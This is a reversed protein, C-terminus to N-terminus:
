RFNVVFRPSHMPFASYLLRVRDSEPCQMLFVPSIKQPLIDSQLIVVRMQMSM